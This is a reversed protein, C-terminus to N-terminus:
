PARIAVLARLLLHVLDAQREVGTKEFIHRLHTRVTNLSVDLQEAIDDLHTGNAILGAVRAEAATLRFLRCLAQDDIQVKQDPSLIFFVTHMRDQGEALIDWTLLFFHQEGMNPPLTLVHPRTGKGGPRGTKARSLIYTQMHRLLSRAENVARRANENMSLCTAHEDFFIIGLPLRDLLTAATNVGASLRDILLHLHLSRAIHPLLPQLQLEDAMSFGPEHRCGVAIYRLAGDHRSCLGILAQTMGLDHFLCPQDISMATVSPTELTLLHQLTAIPLASRMSNEKSAVPMDAKGDADAAPQTSEGAQLHFAHLHDAEDGSAFTAITAVKGHLLPTVHGLFRM